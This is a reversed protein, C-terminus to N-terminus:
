LDADATWDISALSPGARHDCFDLGQNQHKESPMRDRGSIIDRNIKHLVVVGALHQQFAAKCPLSRKGVQLVHAVVEFHKM